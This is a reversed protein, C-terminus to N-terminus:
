EAPKEFSATDMSVARNLPLATLKRSTFFNLVLQYSRHLLLCLGAPSLPSKRKLRTSPERAERSRTCSTLKPPGNRRQRAHRFRM